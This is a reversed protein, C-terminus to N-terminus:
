RLLVGVPLVVGGLAVLGFLAPQLEPNGKMVARAVQAYLDQGEPTVGRLWNTDMAPGLSSPLIFTVLALLGIMKVGELYTRNFASETPPTQLAQLLLAVLCSKVLFM